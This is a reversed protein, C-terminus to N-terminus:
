HAFVTVSGLKTKSNFGKQNNYLMEQGSRLMTVMHEFSELSHICTEQVSEFPAVLVAIRGHKKFTGRQNM